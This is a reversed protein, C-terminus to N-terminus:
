EWAKGAAVVMTVALKWLSLSATVFRAVYLRLAGLGGAKLALRELGLGVGRPREITQGWMVMKPPATMVM